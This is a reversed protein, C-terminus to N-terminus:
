QNFRKVDIFFDPYYQLILPFYKMVLEYYIGNAKIKKLYANFKEQLKTADKTFGVGMVQEESVPGIIKIKGPWKSLAILVDPLDLLTASAKKRIIAPILDNLNGPFNIFKVDVNDLDYLDKDICTGTKGLITIGNLQRIVNKIDTKINSTKQVVKLPSDISAVLLVQTPLVPDSYNILTERWPLKTLGNAILDGKIPVKGIVKVKGGKVEIAKGTLDSIVTEWSTKVYVYKVGLEKCFGKILEVSFGDGLGTVFNAYPVGLHRLEGKKLIEDLTAAYCLSFFTTSFFMLLLFILKNKGKM